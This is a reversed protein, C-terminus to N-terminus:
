LNTGRVLINYSTTTSATRCIRRELGVQTLILSGIDGLAFVNSTNPITRNSDGTDLSAPLSTQNEGNGRDALPYQM